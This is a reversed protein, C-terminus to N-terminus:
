IPWKGHAITRILSELTVRYATIEDCDEATLEALIRPVGLIAEVRRQEAVLAQKLEEVQNRMERMGAVLEHKLDGELFRKLAM